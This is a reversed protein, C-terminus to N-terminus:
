LQITNRKIYNGEDEEFSKGEYPSHSFNEDTGMGGQSRTRGHFNGRQGPHENGTPSFNGEYSRRPENWQKQYHNKTSEKPVKGPKLVSHKRPMFFIVGNGLCTSNFITERFTLVIWLKVKHDSKNRFCREQKGNEFGAKVVPKVTATPKQKKPGVPQEMKPSNERGIERCKNQAM